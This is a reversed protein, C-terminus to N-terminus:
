FCLGYSLALQSIENLPIQEIFFLMFLMLSCIVFHFIHAIDFVSLSPIDLM